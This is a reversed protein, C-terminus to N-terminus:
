RQTYQNVQLFTPTGVPVFNLEALETEVNLISSKESVVLNIRKNEESLESIKGQLSQIEYGTSAYSNVGSLYSLLVALIVALTITSLIFWKSVKRAPHQYKHTRSLTLEPFFQAINLTKLM